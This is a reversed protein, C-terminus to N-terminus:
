GLELYIIDVSDDAALVAYISMFPVLIGATILVRIEPDDAVPVTRTEFEAALLDIVAPMEHLLFDTASPMGDAGRQEPLLEDLRDFFSAVVRVQRRTM